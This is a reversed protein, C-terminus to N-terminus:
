PRVQITSTQCGQCSAISTHTAVSPRRLLYDPRTRHAISRSAAQLCAAPLAATLRWGAMCTGVRMGCKPKKAEREGNCDHFDSTKNFPHFTQWNGYGVHNIVLDFLVLMGRQQYLQVLQM